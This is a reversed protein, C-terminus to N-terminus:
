ANELRRSLSNNIRKSGLKKRQYERYKISHELCWTATVRKKPCLHCLGKEKQKIQWKRQRSLDIQKKM